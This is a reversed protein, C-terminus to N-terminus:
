GLRARPRHQDHTSLKQQDLCRDPAPERRNAESAEIRVTRLKRQNAFTGMSGGAGIAAGALTRDRQGAVLATLMDRGSVGFTDAAVSDLKIGGSELVKLLRQKERTREEILKTLYRTLDRIAWIDEPPIFSGRLLGVEMLQALWQSDKVDTKRGPVAKVHAANVVEACVAAGGVEKLAQYVPLWYVGTSEMVVHTVGREVVLWRAMELLQGYFTGFRRTTQWRVGPQEADPTRATVTVQRKHVDIGAVRQYLIEM